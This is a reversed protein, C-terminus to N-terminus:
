ANIERKRQRALRGVRERRRHRVLTVVAAAIALALPILLHWGALVLLGAVLVTSVVAMWWGISWRALLRIAAVMGLAYVAIMCSTHILIFPTLNM